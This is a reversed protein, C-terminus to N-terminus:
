APQVCISAIPIQRAGSQGCAPRGPRRANRRGGAHHAPGIGAERSQSNKVERDRTCRGGEDPDDIRDRLMPDFDNLFHARRILMTVESGLARLLGAFEVSTYGAGAIAIKKPQAALEFFGDSTIGLGAGPVEPIFPRGGVAIVVHEATLM